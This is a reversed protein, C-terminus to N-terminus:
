TIAWCQNGNLQSSCNNGLTLEIRFLTSLWKKKSAPLLTITPYKSALNKQCIHKEPLLAKEEEMGNATKNETASSQYLDMWQVDVWLRIQEIQLICQLGHCSTCWASSHQASDQQAPGSHALPPLTHIASGQEHRSNTVPMNQWLVQCQKNCRNIKWM